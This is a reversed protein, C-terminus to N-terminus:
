HCHPSMFRACSISLMPYAPPPRACCWVLQIYQTTILGLSAHPPHSSPTYLLTVYAQSPIGVPPFPLPKPNDRVWNQYATNSPSLFKTQKFGPLAPFPPCTRQINHLVSPFDELTHCKLTLIFSRSHPGPLGTQVSLGTRM